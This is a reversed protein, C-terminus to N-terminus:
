IGHPNLIQIDCVYWVYIVCKGDWKEPIMGTHDGYWKPSSNWTGTLHPEDGHEVACNSRAAAPQPAPTKEGPVL